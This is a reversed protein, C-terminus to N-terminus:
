VTKSRWDLDKEPDDESSSDNGEEAHSGNERVRKRSVESLTPLDIHAEAESYLVTRADPLDRNGNSLMSM